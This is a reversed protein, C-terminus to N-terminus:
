LRAAVFDAASDMAWGYETHAASVVGAGCIPDGGACYHGTRQAYPAPVGPGVTELPDGFLLIAAISSEFSGPLTHTGPLATVTPTGLVGHVVIAGQSYGVLVFRQDPCHAAASIVHRAMEATGDSISTPVLLNAPYRVAHATLAGPLRATLTEYLPDGIVAGLVGPEGTGRAVVVETTACDAAAAAAGLTATGAILVAVAFARLPRWKESVRMSRVTM